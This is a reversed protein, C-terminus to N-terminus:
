WEGSRLDVMQTSGPYRSELVAIRLENMIRSWNSATTLVFDNAEMAVLLSGLAALGPRGNLERSMKPSGNYAEIRHPLMEHFYADVYVNWDVPAAEQFARLAKPDETALLIHVHKRGRNSLIHQVADLYKQVPVLAMENAKDGWRMHVTILDNPAVGSPFVRKMQRQAEYQVKASIGSFLFEMSSSRIEAISYSETLIPCDMGVRGRGRALNYTQSHNNPSLALEHTCHPESKPFYCQMTHENEPLPLGDAIADSGHAAKSCSEVDWWLWSHITHIRVNAELANCLAQSWVHLDSGLGFRNRYWFHGAPLSCNAQHAAMQKALTTKLSLNTWDFRLKPLTQHKGSSEPVYSATWSSNHTRAQQSIITNGHPIWFSPPGQNQPRYLDTLKRAQFGGLIWLRQVVVVVLFLSLSSKRHFAIFRQRM